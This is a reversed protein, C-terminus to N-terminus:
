GEAKINVEVLSYAQFVKIDHIDGLNIVLEPRLITMDEELFNERYDLVAISKPGGYDVKLLNRFDGSIIRSYKDQMQVDNHTGIIYNAQIYKQLFQKEESDCLITSQIIGNGTKNYASILIRARTFSAYEDQLIVSKLSEYLADRLSLYENLAIPKLIERLLGRPGNVRKRMIAKEDYHNARRINYKDIDIIDTLEDVVEKNKLLFKYISMEVDIIASFDFLVSNQSSM